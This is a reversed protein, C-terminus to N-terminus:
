VRLLRPGLLVFSWGTGSSREKRRAARPDVCLVRSHENQIYWYAPFSDSGPM